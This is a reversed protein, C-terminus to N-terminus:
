GDASSFNGIVLSSVKFITATKEPIVLPTFVKLRLYLTGSVENLMPLIQSSPFV